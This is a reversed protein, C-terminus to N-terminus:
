EGGGVIKGVQEIVMAMATADPGPVGDRLRNLHSQFAINVLRMLENYRDTTLCRLAVALVEANSKREIEAAVDDLSM